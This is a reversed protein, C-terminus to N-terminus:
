LLPLLSPAARALLALGLAACAAAIALVVALELAFLLVVRGRAAGIRELTHRESRRLRVAMGVVLAGLIATVTGLLWAVADFLARVRVVHAMLDEVVARPELAQLAGAANVSTALLTRAKDSHPFVLVATLPLEDLDAHLHFSARNEPTIRAEPVLAPGVVVQEAGRGYLLAPDLTEASPHGHALGELVWATAIDCFVAGDDPGGTAALVGAVELELPAPAALDYAELADSYLRAGPELALERAVDAGLACEGIWLPRSGALVELGRREFYEPTTAVIPRGRATRRVYLPVVLDRPDAGIAGAQGTRLPDLEAPRFYLAALTLDFRNGRAGVVLPTTEARAYLEREFDRTLLRTALPLFLTAALALAFLLAAGPHHALHKWALRLLGM